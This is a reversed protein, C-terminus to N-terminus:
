AADRVEEDDEDETVVGCPCSQIAERVAKHHEPPPTPDLLIIQGSLFDQDFVAPAILACMGASCCSDQDVSIRM